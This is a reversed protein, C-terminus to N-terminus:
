KRKDNTYFGNGRFVVPTVTIVRRSEGGCKECQPPSDDVNM